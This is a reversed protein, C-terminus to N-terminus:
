ICRSARDMSSLVTCDPVPFTSGARLNLNVVAARPPLTASPQGEGETQKRKKKKM